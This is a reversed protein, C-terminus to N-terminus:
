QSFNQLFGVDEAYAKGIGDTAGTVVLFSFFFCWFQPSMILEWQKLRFFFFFLPKGFLQISKYCHFPRSSKCRQRMEYPSVNGLLRSSGNPRNNASTTHIFARSSDSGFLLLPRYKSVGKKWTSRKIVGAALYLCFHILLSSSPRNDRYTGTPALLNCLCRWRTRM